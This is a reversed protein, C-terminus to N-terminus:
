LCASLVIDQKKFLLRSKLMTGQGHSEKTGILHYGMVDIIVGTINKQTDRVFFAMGSHSPISFTDAIQKVLLGNGRDSTYTLSSDGYVINVYSIVSGEPFTFNGTYEKLTTDAQSFAATFCGALLITLTLIKKM